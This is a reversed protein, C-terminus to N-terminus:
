LQPYESLKLHLIFFSLVKLEAIGIFLTNSENLKKKKQEESKM